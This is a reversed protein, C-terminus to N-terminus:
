KHNEIAEKTEQLRKELQACLRAPVANTSDSSNSSLDSGENKGGPLPTDGFPSDKQLHNSLDAIVVQLQELESVIVQECIKSELNEDFSFNGVAFPQHVVRECASGIKTGLTDNCAFRQMSKNARPEKCRNAFSHWVARYWAIIKDCITIFILQLPTSSICSCNLIESLQRVASRNTDFVAGTNRPQRQTSTTSFDGASSICASPPVHLTRLVGLASSLCSQCTDSCPTKTGMDLLNRCDSGTATPLLKTSPSAYNIGSAEPPSYLDQKSSNHLSRPATRSTPKDLSIYSSPFTNLSKFFADADIVDDIGGPLMLQDQGSAIYTELPAFIGNATADFGVTSTDPINPTDFAVDQMSWLPALMNPSTDLQQLNPHKQHSDMSPLEVGVLQSGPHFDNCAM